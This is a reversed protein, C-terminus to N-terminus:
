NPIMEDTPGTNKVAKKATSMLRVPVLSLTESIPVLIFEIRTRDGECSLSDISDRSGFVIDSMLDCALYRLLPNMDTIGRSSSIEGDIQESLKDVLLKFRELSGASVIVDGAREAEELGMKAGLGLKPYVSPIIYGDFTFSAPPEDLKASELEILAKTLDLIERFKPTVEDYVSEGRFHDVNNAADLTKFRLDLALIATRTEPPKWELHNSLPEFARYWLEVTKLYKQRLESISASKTLSTPETEPRPM